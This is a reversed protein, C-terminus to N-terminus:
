RITHALMFRKQGAAVRLGSFPRSEIVQGQSGLYRVEGAWTGESLLIRGLYIRAPLTRWSRKDSQETTLAYVNGLAGILQGVPDNKDPAIKRRAERTAIYKAAARAIAKATIRGVRDKLNKKAIATIDELLDLRVRLHRENQQMSLEVQTVSSARAVFKPLAVTLLYTGGQGNPIPANIFFDEKIPSRGVYVVAVLEGEFTNQQLPFQAAAKPFIKKYSEFEENLHLADTTKLLDFGIRSPLSMRYDRRYDRFADYAKRYSIFADNTEGRAEYLVGSLYRAFADKKYINKKDYNDNLLNLRADVQRAEVLAADWKEMAAYNLASFLHVLVKEFDEGEYPLLNDNSILAGTHTLLSQTYLREMQTKAKEFFTNSEAHRGALHLLMGRDLLYLLTNRAGYDGRSEAVAQDAALYDHSRLSEEVREHHKLSPACAQLLLILIFLRRRM